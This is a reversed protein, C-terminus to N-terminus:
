LKIDIQDNVRLKKRMEEDEVRKLRQRNKEQAEVLKEPAFESLFALDFGSVMDGKAIRSAISLAKARYKAEETKENEKSRKEIKDMANAWKEEAAATNKLWQEDTNRRDQAARLEKEEKTLNITEKVYDWDIPVILGNGLHEKEKAMSEEISKLQEETPEAKITVYDGMAKRKNVLQRYQNRYHMGAPSNQFSKNISFVM